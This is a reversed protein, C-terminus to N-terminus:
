GILDKLWDSKQLNINFNQPPIPAEFWKEYSKKGDGSKFYSALADEVAEKFPADDRRMGFAYYETSQPTGTVVWDSPSMAQAKQGELLVDDCIFAVVRGNALLNFAEMHDQASIVLMKMAKDANMANIARESTTGATVIVSKGQLDSFDEYSPEGDKVKTLFRVNSEFFRSSFAISARREETETISGCELDITGNKVLPIGTFPTCQNYQIELTIGLQRGLAEVIATALDISYGIPKGIWGNYSFPISSERYGITIIGSDKIKKLTGTLESAMSATTTSIHTRDYCAKITPVLKANASIIAAPLFYTASKEYRKYEPERGTVQSHM